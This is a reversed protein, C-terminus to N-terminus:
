KIEVPTNKSLLSALKNLAKQEMRISLEGELNFPGSHIIVGNELFIAKGGLAGKLYREKSGEPPVVLGRSRFYEDPAYWLPYNYILATKTEIEAKDKLSTNPYIKYVLTKKGNTYLVLTQKKLNILVARLRKQFEDPLKVFTFVKPTIFSKQPVDRAILIYGSKLYSLKGSASVKVNDKSNGSFLSCSSFVVVALALVISVAARKAKM